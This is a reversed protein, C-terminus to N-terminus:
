CDKCPTVTSNLKAPPTDKSQALHILADNALWEAGAKDVAPTEFRLKHSALLDDKDVPAIEVRFWEPTYKM